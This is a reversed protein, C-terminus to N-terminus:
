FVLFAPSDLLHQNVRLFGVVPHRFEFHIQGPGASQALREKVEPSDATQNSDFRLVRGVSYMPHM